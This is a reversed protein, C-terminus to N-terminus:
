STALATGQPAKAEAATPTGNRYEAVDKGRTMVLRMEERFREWSVNPFERHVFLRFVNSVSEPRGDPSFYQSACYRIYHAYRLQPVNASASLGFDAIRTLDPWNPHHVAALEDFKTLAETAYQKFSAGLVTEGKACVWLSRERHRTTWKNEIVSDRQWSGSTSPDVPEPKGGDGWGLLEGISPEVWALVTQNLSRIPYHLLQYPLGIPESLLTVRGSQCYEDIASHTEWHLGGTGTLSYLAYLGSEKHRVVPHAVGCLATPRGNLGWVELDLIPLEAVPVGRPDM